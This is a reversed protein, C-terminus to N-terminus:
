FKIHMMNKAKLMPSLLVFIKSIEIAKDNNQQGPHLDIFLLAFKSYVKALHMLALVLVVMFRLWM